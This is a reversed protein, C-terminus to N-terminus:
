EPPALPRTAHLAAVSGRNPCRGPSIAVSSSRHWVILWLCNNFEVGVKQHRCPVCMGWRGPLQFLPEERSPDHLYAGRGPRFIEAPRDSFRVDGLGASEKEADVREQLRIGFECSFQEVQCAATRAAQEVTHNGCMRDSTFGEQGRQIHLVKAKEM